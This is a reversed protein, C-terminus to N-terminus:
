KVLEQEAPLKDGPKVTGSLIAGKVQEVILESVNKSKVSHFMNM